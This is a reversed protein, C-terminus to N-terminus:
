EIFGYKKLETLIVHTAEPSFTRIRPYQDPTIGCRELREQTFFARCTDPRYKRLFPKLRFCLWKKSVCGAPVSYDGVRGSESTNSHAKNQFDASQM